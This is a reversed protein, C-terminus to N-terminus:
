KQGGFYENLKEMDANTVEVIENSKKDIIIVVPTGHIGLKNALAISTELKKEGQPTIAGIKEDLPKDFAEKLDKASLLRKSIDPSKEHGQLMPLPNLHFYVTAGSQKFFAEVRQCFPCFPDTFLVAAYQGNDSGYKVPDVALLEKTVNLSRIKDALEENQSDNLRGSTLDQGEMTYLKGFFIKREFPNVYLLNEGTYVRYWGVMEAREVKKVKSKPMIAKVFDSERDSLISANLSLAGAIFLFLTKKIM